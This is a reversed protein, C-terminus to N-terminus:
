RYFKINLLKTASSNCRCWNCCLVLCLWKYLVYLATIIKVICVWANLIINIIKRNIAFERFYIKEVETRKEIADNEKEFRGFTRRKGNFCLEVRWKRNISDWYYGKANRNLLNQQQTAERLNAKRNDLKDHNIHDIQKEKKAGMILRHIIINKYNRRAVVYGHSSEYWKYKKIKNVDETDIKSIKGNDLLIESYTELKKIKNILYKKEVM